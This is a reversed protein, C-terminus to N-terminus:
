RAPQDRADLHALVTIRNGDPDLLSFRRIGMPKEALPEIINYGKAGAEEHIRSV